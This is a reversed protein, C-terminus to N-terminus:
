PRSTERGVKPLAGSAIESLGSGDANVRYIGFPFAAKVRSDPYGTFYIRKGDLSWVPDFATINEPTLRVDKAPNQRKDHLYLASNDEETVKFFAKTGPVKKTCVFIDPATPSPAFVDNSDFKNEPQGTFATLPTKSLVTGDLSFFFLERINHAVLARGDGTFSVGWLGQGPIQGIANGDPSFISIPKALVPSPVPPNIECAIKSGDPAWIVDFVRSKAQIFDRVAGSAAHLLMVKNANKPNADHFALS